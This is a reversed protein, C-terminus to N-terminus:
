FFSQDNLLANLSVLRLTRIIADTGDKSVDVQSRSVRRNLSSAALRPLSITTMTTLMSKGTQVFANTHRPRHRDPSSQKRHICPPNQFAIHYASPLPALTAGRPKQPLCSFFQVNHQNYTSCYRHVANRLLARRQWISM